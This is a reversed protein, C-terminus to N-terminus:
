KLTTATTGGVAGFPTFAVAPFALAVTLKEGGALLPPAWISNYATICCGPPMRLKPVALGMVTVPRVLPVFYSKVTVAVLTTPVEGSDLGDFLTVGFFHVSEPVTM